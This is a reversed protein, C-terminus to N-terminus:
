ENTAACLIAVGGGMGDGVGSHGEGKDESDGTKGTVGDRPNACPADRM